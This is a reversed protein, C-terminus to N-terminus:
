AATGGSSCPPGCCWWGHLRSNRWEAQCQSLLERQFGRSIGHPIRWTLTKFLSELPRFCSDGQRTVAKQTRNPLPSALAIPHAQVQFPCVEAQRTRQVSTCGSLAKPIDLVVQQTCQCTVTLSARFPPTTPSKPHSTGIRHLFSRMTSLRLPPPHSHATHRIPQASQDLKRAATTQRVCSAM